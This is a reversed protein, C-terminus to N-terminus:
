QVTANTSGTTKSRHVSLVIQQGPSFDFTIPQSLSRIQNGGPDRFASSTVVHSGFNDFTNSDILEVRYTQNGDSAFRGAIHQATFHKGAPVTFFSQAVFGQGDALIAQVRARYPTRESAVLTPDQCMQAGARGVGAGTIATIVLALAMSTKFVLQSR